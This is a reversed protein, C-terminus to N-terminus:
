AGGLAFVVCAEDQLSRVPPQLTVRSSGQGAGPPPPPAPPPPPPAGDRLQEAEVVTPRTGGGYSPWGALVDTRCVRATPDIIKVQGLRAGSAEVAARARRTADRIAENALAARIKNDPELTFYVTGVSTPQAALASNYASELAAIDRVEIEIMATVEYRDIHDARENDVMNGAKDRYQDYLPRTSLTTTLRVREAGLGRLANDLGAVRRMAAASAGAVDREVASFRATFTARNAPLDVRVSGLSAIVPERMWWPAPIYRSGIEAPPPQVQAVAPTGLSSLSLIAMVAAADIRRMGM